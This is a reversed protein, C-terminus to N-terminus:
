SRSPATARCATSSWRGPQAVTRRSGGADRLRPPRDAHGSRSVHRGGPVIRRGAPAAPTDAPEVFAVTLRDADRDWLWVSLFTFQVIPELHGRLSRLLDTLDSHSTLAGAVDVLARYRVDVDDLCM